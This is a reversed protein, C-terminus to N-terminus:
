FLRKQLVIKKVRITRYLHCFRFIEQLFANLNSISVLPVQIDNLKIGNDELTVMMPILNYPLYKKIELNFGLLSQLLKSFTEPNKKLALARQYQLNAAQNISSFIDRNKWHKADILLVDQKKVGIVDIEYREQKTERKFNSKDSFRFNKIVNYDNELLIEKILLEFGAYDLLRSLQKIDLDLFRMSEMVFQIKDIAIYEMYNGKKLQVFEFKDLFDRLEHLTLSKLIKIESIEHWSETIKSDATKLLHYIENFFQKITSTSFFNLM